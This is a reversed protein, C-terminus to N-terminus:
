ASSPMRSTAGDRPSPSTYLLCCYIRSIRFGQANYAQLVQDLASRYVAMSQNELPTITRYQLRRSVTVLFPLKNIFLTDICLEVTKAKETLEPPIEMYDKVVPQPKRRTTKGKLAGIDPGFIQEAIEIHELTVPCGKITNSRVIAKFDHTSPTGLTQYLGRAKKAQLVERPTCMKMNEQITSLYLQYNTQMFSTKPKSSATKNDIIGNPHDKYISPVFVYLNNKTRKFKVQRDGIHVIFADEQESDYVVKHQEAMKALSFINIAEPNYWVEGYQPVTAVETTKIVGANTALNLTKKSRWISHM